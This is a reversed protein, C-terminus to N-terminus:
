IFFNRNRVSEFAIKDKDFILFGVRMYLKVWQNSHTVTTSIIKKLVFHVVNSTTKWVEAISSYNVKSVQKNQILEYPNKNFENIQFHLKWVSMFEPDPIFWYRNLGVKGDGEANNLYFSGILSFKAVRNQNAQSLIFKTLGNWVKM